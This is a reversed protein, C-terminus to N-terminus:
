ALFRGTKELNEREVRNLPTITLSPYLYYFPPHPGISLKELESHLLFVPSFFFLVFDKKNKLELM